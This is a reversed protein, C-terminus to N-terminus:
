GVLIVRDLLLEGVVAIMLHRNNEPVEDWPKASAERTEYDFLKALDEYVEHFRRAIVEAQGMRAKYMETTEEEDAM